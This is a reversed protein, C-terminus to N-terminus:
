HPAAPHHHPILAHLDSILRQSGPVRHQHVRISHRRRNRLSAAGELAHRAARRSAQGGKGRRSWHPDTTFTHIPKSAHTSGPTVMPSPAITPALDTTTASM